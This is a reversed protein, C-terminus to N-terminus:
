KLSPAYEPELWSIMEKNNQYVLESVEKFVKESDWKKHKYAASAPHSLVFSPQMPTKFKEFYSAAQGLFILPCGIVSYVEHVMYETFPRWLDEHIGPKGFETTLQANTLLVGQDALYQLSQPRSCPLCLGEEFEQELADYFNILSPAKYREHNGCSLCLGDAVQTGEVISHYPCMGMLVVNVDKYPTDIFARFTLDHQPTIIKEQKSREKLHNYIRDFGGHDFFPKIVRAWTGFRPSFSNWNLKISM